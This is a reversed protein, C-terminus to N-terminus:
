RQWETREEASRRPRALIACPAPRRRVPREAEGGGGVALRQKDPAAIDGGGDAGAEAAATAGTATQDPANGQQKEQTPSPHPGGVVPAPRHGHAPLQTASQYIHGPTALPGAAAPARPTGLLPAASLPPPPVRLFPPLRRTAHPLSPSPYLHGNPGIGM